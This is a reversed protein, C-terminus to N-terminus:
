LDQNNNPQYEPIQLLAKQEAWHLPLRRMLANLTLNAARRDLIAEIVFPALLTLRLLRCAYSQNIKNARALETISAYVGSEILSRWRYARAIAKAISDDFRMPAALRPFDGVITKRGGRVAFQLPVHVTITSEMEKTTATM